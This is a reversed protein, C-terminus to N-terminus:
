SKGSARHRLSSQFDSMMADVDGALRKIDSDVTPVVRRGLTVLKALSQSHLFRYIFEDMEPHSNPLDSMAKYLGCYQAHAAVYEPLVSADGDDSAALQGVVEPAIVLPPLALLVMCDSHNPPEVEGSMWSAVRKEMSIANRVSMELQPRILAMLFESQRRRATRERRVSFTAIYISAVATLVAGTAAAWGAAVDSSFVGCIGEM